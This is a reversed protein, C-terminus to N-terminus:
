SAKRKAYRARMDIRECEACHRHGSRRVRVNRPDSWDHGSRRCRTQAMSLRRMNEAHTVPEEHGPNVCAVNRCLHDLELGTLDAGTLAAYIVRHAPQDRKGARLYPYGADNHWADPMVWCEGVVPRLPTAPFGGARDVRVLIDTISLSM